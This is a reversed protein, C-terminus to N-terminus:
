WGKQYEKFGDEGLEAIMRQEWRTLALRNEPSMTAKLIASVSPLRASVRAADTSLQHSTFLPFSLIYQDSSTKQTRDEDTESETASINKSFQKTESHSIKLTDSSTNKVNSARHNVQEVNQAMNNDGSSTAQTFSAMTNDENGDTKKAHVPQSFSNVWTYGYTGKRKTSDFLSDDSSQKSVSSRSGVKTQREETVTPIRKHSNSSSVVADSKLKVTPDDLVTQPSVRRSVSRPFDAMQTESDILEDASIMVSVQSMNAHYDSTVDRVDKHKVRSVTSGAKKRDVRPGCIADTEYNWATLSSIKDKTWKKKQSYCRGIYLRQSCTFNSLWHRHFFVRPSRRFIFM